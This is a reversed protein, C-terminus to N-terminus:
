PKINHIQMAISMAFIVSEKADLSSAREHGHMFSNRKERYEDLKKLLHSNYKHDKLKEIAEGINKISDENLDYEVHVKLVNELLRSAMLSTATWQQYSYVKFLENIDKQISTNITEWIKQPVLSSIDEPIKSPTIGEIHDRLHKALYKEKYHLAMHPKRLHKIGNDKRQKNTSNSTNQKSKNTSKVDDEKFVYLYYDFNPVKGTARCKKLYNDYNSLKNQFWKKDAETSLYTKKIENRTKIDLTDWIKKPILHAMWIYTSM